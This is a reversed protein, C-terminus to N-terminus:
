SNFPLSLMRGGADTYYGVVGPLYASQDFKLGSRAMLDYVPVVAGPAAMFQATAYTPVLLISPQMRTRFAAVAAAISEAYGGKFTPVVVYESQSSNFGKALDDVWDGLAGALGHWWTIETAAKASPSALAVVAACAAALARIKM